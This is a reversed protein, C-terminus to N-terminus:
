ELVAVYLPEGEIIRGVRWGTGDILSELEEPSVILYDFWPSAYRRYRVRLPLQGPMRGPQRNRDHYDREVIEQSASGEFHALLLQGYADSKDNV